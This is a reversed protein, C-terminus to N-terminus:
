TEPSITVWEDRNNSEQSTIIFKNLSQNKKNPFHISCLLRASNCETKHYQGTPIYLFDGGKLVFEDIITEPKENDFEKYMTWKTEGYQHFLFNETTDKHVNFCKSGKCPSAYINATGIGFYQEFTYCLDVLKKNQYEALPIVITKGKNWLDAIAKKNLFPQGMDRHKEFCWRTGYGDYDVVQLTKVYPYQNIYSEMDHFNFLDMYKVREIVLHKKGWYEKFFTESSIPDLIDDITIHDDIM